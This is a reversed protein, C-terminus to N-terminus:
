QGTGPLSHKAPGPGHHIDKAPTLSMSMRRMKKFESMM